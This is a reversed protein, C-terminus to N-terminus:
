VRGEMLEIKKLEEIRKLGGCKELDEHFDKTGFVYDRYYKKLGEGTRDQAARTYAKLHDLDLYYLGPM